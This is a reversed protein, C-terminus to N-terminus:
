FTSGDATPAGSFHRGVEYSGGFIDGAKMVGATPQDNRVLEKFYAMYQAGAKGSPQGDGDLYEFIVGLTHLEEDILAVDTDAAWTAQAAGGSSECWNKSIYEFALTEGGAPAPIVLISDGRYAFKRIPGTYSKAKLGQWEVASVPGSYLYTNSRDWFTEAVFRDFDDPLISTQTEQGLATFTKEMRLAQWPAAKMIQNGVKKAYRLLTIAEEASNGIITSPKLLKVEDAAAQCITLLSM